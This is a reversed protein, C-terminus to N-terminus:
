DFDCIIDRRNLNAIQQIRIYNNGMEASHNERADTSRFRLKNAAIERAM